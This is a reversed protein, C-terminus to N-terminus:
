ISHNAPKSQTQRKHENFDRKYNNFLEKIPNFAQNDIHLLRYREGLYTLDLKTYVVTRFETRPVYSGKPISILPEMITPVPMEWHNRADNPIDYYHGDYPGGIFPCGENYKRNSEIPVRYQLKDELMAAARDMGLMKLEDVAATLEESITVKM